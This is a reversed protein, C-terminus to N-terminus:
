QSKFSDVIDSLSFNWVLNFFSVTYMHMVKSIMSSAQVDMESVEQNVSGTSTIGSHANTEECTVGDEVM